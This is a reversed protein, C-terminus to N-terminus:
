SPSSSGSSKIQGSQLCPAASKSLISHDTKLLAAPRRFFAQFNFIADFIPFFGSKSALCIIIYVLRHKCHCRFQPFVDTEIGHKKGMHVVSSFLPKRHVHGPMSITWFPPKRHWERKKVKKRLTPARYAKCRPHASQPRGNKESTLRM